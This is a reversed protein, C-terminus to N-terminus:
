PKNTDPQELRITQPYKADNLMDTQEGIIKNLTVEQAITTDIIKKGVIAEYIKLGTIYDEECTVYLDIILKRTTEVAKDLTQNTLRPHIRYTKVKTVPNVIYTFLQNIVEILMLQKRKANNIMKNINEAYQIFLKDTVSISKGTKYVGSAGECDARKNYDKLKIDSFKLVSSDFSTNGTFALYFTKLDRDYQEKVTKSMGGFGGTKDNYGDDFYLEMLETIGPEDTLRMDDSQMDPSKINNVDSGCMKPQIDIKTPDGRTPRSRQLAKIRNDCINMKYLKRNVNPPINNKDKWSKQVTTGDTDKYIYVPNITCVISAFVHAIKIYFKAIGDCMRKKKTKMVSDSQVDLNELEKKNLFILQDTTQKDVVNGKETRQALYTVELNTFHKDIVDSTLIILDNCYENKEALKSLSEFNSKLILGSAINDIMIYFNEFVKEDEGPKNSNSSTNGM